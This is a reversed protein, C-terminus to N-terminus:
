LLSRFWKLYFCNLFVGASSRNEKAKAVDLPRPDLSPFTGTVRRWAPRAAASARAPPLGNDARARGPRWRPSEGRCHNEDWPYACNQVGNCVLSNNICMSSHCFFTGGTCPAAPPSSVANGLVSARPRCTRGSRHRQRQGGLGGWSRPGHSGHPRYSLPRCESATGGAPCGFNTKLTMVSFACPFVNGWTRVSSPCPRASSGRSAAPLAPGAAAVGFGQARSPAGLPASAPAPAAPAWRHSRWATWCGGGSSPCCPSPRAGGAHATADEPSAPPSRGPTGVPPVAVTCRTGVVSCRVSFEGRLGSGCAVDGPVRLHQAWHPVRLHRLAGAAPWKHPCRPLSARLCVCCLPSWAAPRHRALVSGGDPGM